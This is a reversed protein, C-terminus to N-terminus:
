IQSPISNSSLTITPALVVKVLSLNGRELFAPHFNNFVYTQLPADIPAPEVIKGPIVIPSFAITPAPLTTVFLIGAPSSQTPLGALNKTLAEAVEKLDGMYKSSEESVSSFLYAITEICQSKLTRQEPTQPSLSYYLKKLGPM